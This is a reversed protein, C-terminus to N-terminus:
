RRRTSSATTSRCRRSSAAGCRSTTSTACGGGRRRCCRASRDVAISGRSSRRSRPPRGPRHRLRPRRGDLTATSCRRCRTRPRRPASCSTACGIGSGPPRRSSSRRSADPAAGLVGSSGARSGPRRRDDLGVQERVLAWLRRAARGRDDLAMTYYRSTGDRRSTVWGADALTKLHRSVTSQPLQLVACLEGVTLEHRELVLLM